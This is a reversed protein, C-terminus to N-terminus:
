PLASRGRRSPQAAERGAGGSRGSPFCTVNLWRATARLEQWPQSTNPPRVHERGGLRRVEIGHPSRRPRRGAVTHHVHEQWRHHCQPETQCLLIRLIAPIGRRPTQYAWILRDEGSHSPLLAGTLSPLLPPLPLVGPNNECFLQEGNAIFLIM